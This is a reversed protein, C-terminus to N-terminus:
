EILSDKSFLSDVSQHIKNDNFSNSVSTLDRIISRRTSLQPLTNIQRNECIIPCLKISPLSNIKDNEKFYYCNKLYFSNITQEVDNKTTEFSMLSLSDSSFRSKRNTEINSFEKVSILEALPSSRKHLLILIFLLFLSFICMSFTWIFMGILIPLPLIDLFSNLWWEM